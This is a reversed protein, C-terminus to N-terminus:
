WTDGAMILVQSENGYKLEEVFRELGDELPIMAIGRRDYEKELSASVMGAGKWPGWNIATVRGKIKEKLAWTYRDMVSNAAAYDTQGRNGYVSAISSFLVVFQVDARLEEILVRLPTVKTTFVREFSAATKHQFLKDELLGAGHIVGDIRGHDRYVEHIFDRLAPEDRLDLSRYTVRAGNRQLAQITQLIQNHKFLEQAKKEIGAPSKLVGEAILQNRIEEKTNCATYRGDNHQQPDPSRGVLIYHCPYDKAFRNTLEATIGQAGGFVLVVAEKDLDPMAAGASRVLDAPVLNYYHRATGRYVIESPADAYLLEQLVIRAFAEPELVSQLSIMRCRTQELERDLSKMLGPYGQYCRLMKLDGQQNMHGTLDSITFIWSVKEPNLKKILSFGEMINYLRASAHANIIILGDYQELNDDMTVLSASAGQAELLQKVVISILGEDDTIALRRGQLLGPDATATQAATIEFRM